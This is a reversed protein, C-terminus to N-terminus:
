RYSAIIEQAQLPNEYIVNGIVVTDALQAVQHLQQQTKIGGGYFLRINGKVRSVAGVLEMNGFRGSYEIYLIPLNFIHEALGAYAVADEVAPEAAGTLLGAASNGNCILYGETLVRDWKIFPRYQKIASLHADILWAKDGANLVVPIFHADVEPVVAQASSIEQILPGRYGAQRVSGVLRATNQYNIGQTGGVIVADVNKERLLPLAERPMEKDPDLKLALKWNRWAEGM